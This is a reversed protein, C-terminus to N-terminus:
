IAVTILVSYYQCLSLCMSWHFMVSDLFLGVCTFGISKQCFGFPICHLFSLTLLYYQFQANRPKFSMGEVFILDFHAISWFLLFCLLFDKPDLTLCLIRLCSVLLVMWSFFQYISNWWFSFTKSMFTVILCIVCVLLFIHEFWM